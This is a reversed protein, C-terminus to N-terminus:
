RQAHTRRGRLTVTFIGKKHYRRIAQATMRDLLSRDDTTVAQTLCETRCPCLSCHRNLIVPPPPADRDALKQVEALVSVALRQRAALPVEHAVGDVTIILGYGPPRGLILRLIHGM